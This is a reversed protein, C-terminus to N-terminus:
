RIEFRKLKGYLASKACFVKSRRKATFKPMWDPWSDIFEDALMCVEDVSLTKFIEEARNRMAKEGYESSLKTRNM